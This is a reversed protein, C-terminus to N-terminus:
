TLRTLVDPCSEAVRRLLAATAAADHAAILKEDRCGHTRFPQLVYYQVGHTFLEDALALLDDATHVARHVTTRCEHAVGSALLLALSERVRSASGPVGTVEDYRRFSTKIDLGVWDCLPLVPRLREPYAGSTHLGIRFGLTRVAQMAEGLGRQLTPEGGSFVVADLLGRRTELWALIDGWAHTNAGDPPILHPNHCYACRWSCGQCFVVAALGDPYDTTSLPVLGGVRLAGLEAPFGNESSGSGPRLSKKM